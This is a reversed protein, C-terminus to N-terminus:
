ALHRHQKDVDDAGCCETLTEVGFVNVVDEVERQLAEAAHDHPTASPHKLVGTVAQEGGESALGRMLVVVLFTILIGILMSM